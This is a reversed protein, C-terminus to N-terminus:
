SVQKKTLTFGRVAVAYKKGGYLEGVAVVSMFFYAAGWKGRIMSLCAVLGLPAMVGCTLLELSVIGLDSGGWRKDARAYEQWMKATLGEGYFAGYLRSPQNLFYVGPPTMPLNPRGPIIKNIQTYTFFTNYLFPAEMAFHTTFDFAHWIFLIRTKLTASAPLLARSSAIALFVIGSLALLSYVTAPTVLDPTSSVAAM